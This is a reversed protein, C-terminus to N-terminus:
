QSGEEKINGNKLAKAMDRRFGENSLPTDRVDEQTLTAGSALKAFLQRQEMLQLAVKPGEVQYTLSDAYVGYAAIGGSEITRRFREILYEHFARREEPSKRRVDYLPLVFEEMQGDPYHVVFSHDYMTVGTIDPHMRRVVSEYYELVEAKSTGSKLMDKLTDALQTGAIRERKAEALLKVQEEKPLRSFRSMKHLPYRPRGNLYLTDGGINTFTYVPGQLLRAYLYVLGPGTVTETVTAANDTNKESQARAGVASYVVAILTFFLYYRKM